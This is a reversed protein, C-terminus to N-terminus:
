SAIGGLAGGAACFALVKLVEKTSSYLAHRIAVSVGMLILFYALGFALGWVLRRSKMTKGTLFGGIFCSLLYLLVIVTEMQEQKLSLKYMAFAAALLALVTFFYSAFLTKLLSTIRNQNM